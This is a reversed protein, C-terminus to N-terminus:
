RPVPQPAAVPAAAKAGAAPAAAAADVLQWFGRRGVVLLRRRDAWALALPEGAVPRTTWQGSAADFVHLGSAGVAFARAIRGRRCQAVVDTLPEPPPSVARWAGNWERLLAVSGVAIAQSKRHRCGDVASLDATTGTMETDATLSTGVGSFAVAAGGAGVAVFRESRHRGVRALATFRPIAVMASFGGWHPRRYHRVRNDGVALGANRNKMRVARFSRAATGAVSQWDRGDFHLFAGGIGVAWADRPSVVSVSLLETRTPTPHRVWRNDGVRMTWAAGHTGVAIAVGRQVDIALLDPESEAASGRSTQAAAGRCVVAVIGIALM